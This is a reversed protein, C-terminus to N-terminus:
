SGCSVVSSHLTSTPRGTNYTQFFLFKPHFFFHCHYIIVVAANPALVHCRFAELIHHIILCVRLRLKNCFMVERSVFWCDLMDVACFKFFTGAVALFSLFTPCLNIASRSRNKRARYIDTVFVVDFTEKEQV